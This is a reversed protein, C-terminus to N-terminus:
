KLLSYDFYIEILSKTLEVLQFAAIKAYKSLDIEIVEIYYGWNTLNEFSVFTSYFHMM